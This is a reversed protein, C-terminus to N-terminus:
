IDFVMALVFALVLGIVAIIIWLKDKNSIRSNANSTKKEQSM